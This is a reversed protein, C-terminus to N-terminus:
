ERDDRQMSNSQCPRCCTTQTSSRRWPPPQLLFPFSLLFFLSHAVAASSHSRALPLPPHATSSRRAVHLLRYRQPTRTDDLLPTPHRTHADPQPPQAPEAIRWPRRRLTECSSQDPPLVAVAVLLAASAAAVVVVSRVLLFPTSSFLRSFNHPHSSHTVFYLHPHSSPSRSLSLPSSLLPSTRSPEVTGRRRAWEDRSTNSSASCCPPSSLPPIPCTRARLPWDRPLALPSCSRRAPAAAM